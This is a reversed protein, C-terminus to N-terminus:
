LCLEGFGIRYGSTGIQYKASTVDIDRRIKWFGNGGNFPSLGFEDNFVRDVPGQVYCVVDNILGCPDPDSVSSRYALYLTTDCCDYFALSVLGPDGGTRVVTDVQACVDRTEDNPVFQTQTVGSCDIYEYTTGGITPTPPPPPDSSL